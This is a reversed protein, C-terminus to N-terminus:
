LDIVFGAVEKTTNFKAVFCPLAPSPRMGARTMVRQSALNDKWCEGHVRNYGFEQRALRLGYAVVRSMIGQGACEPSIWYGLDGCHREKESSGTPTVVPVGDCILAADDGHDFLNIGFIGVLPGDASQRIAWTTEQGSKTRRAVCGDTFAIASKQPFPFTVASSYLGNVISSNLNILRFVHDADSPVVSTLWIDVDVQFPGMSRIHTPTTDQSM